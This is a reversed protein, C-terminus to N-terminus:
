PGEHGQDGVIPRDLVTVPIRQHQGLAPRLVHGHRERHARHRTRHQAELEAQQPRPKHALPTRREAHWEPELTHEEKGFRDEDRDIDEAPAPQRRPRVEPGTHGDDQGPDEATNRDDSGIRPHVCGRAERLIGIAGHDGDVRQPHDEVGRHGQLCRVHEDSGIQDTSEEDGRHVGRGHQAPPHVAVVPQPEDDREADRRDRCRDLHTHAVRQGAPHVVVLRDLEGRDLEHGGGAAVDGLREQALSLSLSVTLPPM